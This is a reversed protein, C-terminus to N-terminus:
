SIYSYWSYSDWIEASYKNCYISACFRDKTSKLAKLLVYTRARLMRPPLDLHMEATDISHQVYRLIYM